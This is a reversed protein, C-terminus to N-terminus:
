FRPPARGLNDFDLLAWGDVGVVEADAERKAKTTPLRYDEVRHGYRSVWEESSQRRLWEPAVLALCNLAHRMTEVVCELRNMARVATLVHTSDTRQRGRAKLLGKERLKVLLLDFLLQEADAKLLRSRFESLVTHDFGPDTLELCLLYKWDIRSRVADAAARDSLGEVFQLITALALRVPAEAPQGQPPFLSAFDADQFITGLSEYIRTCLTGQPFVARTVRATEEPVEDCPKPQLSM